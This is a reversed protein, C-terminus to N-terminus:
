CTRRIQFRMALLFFVCKHILDYLTVFLLLSKLLLEEAGGIKLAIALSLSAWSNDKFVCYWLWRCHWILLRRLLSFHRQSIINLLYCFHEALFKLIHGFPQRSTSIAAASISATWSCLLLLLWFTSIWYLVGRLISIRKRLIFIIHHFVGWLVLDIFVIRIVAGVHCVLLAFAGLNNSLQM